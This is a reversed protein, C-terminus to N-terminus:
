GRQRRWQRPGQAAWRRFAHNFASPERYGLLWAIEAIPMDTEGLYRKALAARLRERIKSFTCSEAALLRTLTRGSVGLKQAVEDLTAQGHPLLPAIANEVRLQWSASAKRRKKLTENCYSELLCNLYDDAGPLRLSAVSRSYTVQDIGGGFEVDCGFLMTWKAPIRRRPHLLRVSQPSLRRGTLQRCLRILMIVFFEIQHRDASRSVGSYHFSVTLGNRDSCRLEVGENHVRSYRALRKLADGLCQSSSQVYYLLGLERLELREALRIGFFDDGVAEAVLNLFRIQHSAAIRVHGDRISECTLGARRLLHDADVGARVASEYAARSIGGSATPWLDASNGQYYTVM